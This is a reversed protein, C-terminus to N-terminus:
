SSPVKQKQGKQQQTGRPVHILISGLLDAHTTVSLLTNATSDKVKMLGPDLLFLFCTHTKKKSGISVYM